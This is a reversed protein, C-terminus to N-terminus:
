IVSVDFGADILANKYHEAIRVNRDVFGAADDVVKVRKHGRTIIRSKLIEIPPTEIFIIRIKEPHHRFLMIFNDADERAVLLYIDTEGRLMKDLYINSKWHCYLIGHENLETFLKHILEIM